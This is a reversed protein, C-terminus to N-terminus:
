LHIQFALLGLVEEGISIALIIDAAPRFGARALTTLAVAMAAVGGKMDTAGRGVIRHGVLDAAFPDHDWPITGPPVVDMHGSLVLHGSSAQGKLRAFLNPRGPEVEVYEVALGWSSLYAGLLRMAPEENGPPNSTDLRILDRALAVVEARDVRAPGSAITM